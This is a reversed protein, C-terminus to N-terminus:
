RRSMMEGRIHVQMKERRANSNNNLAAFLRYSAAPFAGAAAVGIVGDGAVGIVGDGVAQYSCRAAPSVM